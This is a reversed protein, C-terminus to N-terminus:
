GKVNRGNYESIGILNQNHSYWEKGYVNKLWNIVTPRGRPRKLDIRREPMEALPLAKHTKLDYLTIKYVMM